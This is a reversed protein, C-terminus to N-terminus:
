SGAEQPVSGAPRAPLPTSEAPLWVTFRAGRGPTSAVEIRGGHSEVIRRALTLGLGVGQRSTSLRQDVRYFDDFIREQDRPDIGIGHDEVEFAVSDGRAFARVAIWRVAESYKVANSLLNLLVQRIADADVRVEPLDPQIEVRYEFGQSEAQERFSEAVASVLPGIEEYEFRFRRTGRALSAFDLVSDILRELRGCEARIVGLQRQREAADMRAGGMELMEAYMRISTLPTRLEHSVNSVFTTKLNAIRAERRLRALVLAAGAVITLLLVAIVALFAKTRVDVAGIAAPGLASVAVSWFEFPEGVSSRVVVSTTDPATGFVTSGTDDVVALRADRSLQLEGLFRPLIASSVRPLDVVIGAIGGAGGTDGAPPALLRFAILFPVGDAVDSLYRVRESATAGALRARLLRRELKRVLMADRAGGGPAAALTARRAALSGSPALRDLAAVAADRYFERQTVTLEDSQLLAAAGLDAWAAGARPDGLAELARAESWRAVLDLPEADLDFLRPHDHRLREAAALAAGPEGAALATRAQAALAVARLRPATTAAALAAYAQSAAALDGAEFELSDARAVVLEWDHGQRADPFPAPSLAAPMGGSTAVASGDAGLLWLTRGYAAEVAATAPLPDGARRPLLADWVAEEEALEHHLTRAAFEAYREYGERVRAARARREADVARLTFWALLLSPLLVLALFVLAIGLPPGTAGGM